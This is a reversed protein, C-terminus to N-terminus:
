DSHKIEIYELIGAIADAGSYITKFNEEQMM